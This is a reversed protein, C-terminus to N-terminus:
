MLTYRAIDSALVVRGVLNSQASCPEVKPVQLFLSSNPRLRAGEARKLAPLHSVGENTSTGRSTQIQIKEWQAGSTVRM